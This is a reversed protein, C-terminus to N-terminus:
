PYVSNDLPTMTFVLIHHVRGHSNMFTASPAEHERLLAGLEGLYLHLITYPVEWVRSDSSSPLAMWFSTRNHGLRSFIVDKLDDVTCEKDEIQAATLTVTIYNLHQHVLLSIDLEFRVTPLNPVQGLTEFPRRIEKWETLSTQTLPQLHLHALVTHPSPISIVLVHPTLDCLPVLSFHRNYLKRKPM